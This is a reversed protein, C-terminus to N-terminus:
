PRTYIFAYGRSKEWGMYATRCGDCLLSYKGGWTPPGARKWEAVKTAIDSSAFYAVHGKGKDDVWSIFSNEVHGKGKGDIWSTFSNKQGAKM